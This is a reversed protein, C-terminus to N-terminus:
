ILKFFTEDLPRIHFVRGIGLKELSRATRHEGSGHLDTFSVTSDPYTSPFYIGRRIYIDKDNCPYARNNFSEVGWRYHMDRRASPFEPDNCRNVLEVQKTTLNNM